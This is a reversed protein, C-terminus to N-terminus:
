PKRRRCNASCSSCDGGCSFLLKKRRIRRLAFFVLVALVLLVILTAINM